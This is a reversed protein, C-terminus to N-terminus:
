SLDCDYRVQITDLNISTKNVDSGAYWDLKISICATKTGGVPNTQGFASATTDLQYKVYNTERQLYYGSPIVYTFGRGDVDSEDNRFLTASGKTISKSSTSNSTLQIVEFATSAAVSGTAGILAGLLGSITSPNSGNEGVLDFYPIGRLMKTYSGTAFSISLNTIRLGTLDYQIGDVICYADQIGFEVEWTYTASTVDTIRYSVYPQAYYSYTTGMIETWAALYAYTKTDSYDKMPVAAEIENTSVSPQILSTFWFGDIISEKARSSPTDDIDISALEAPISSELFYLYDNNRLYLKVVPSSSFSPNVTGGVYSTNPDNYIEFHLVEFVGSLDRLEGVYCKIGHARKRSNFLTGELSLVRVENSGFLTARFSITRTQYNFCIDEYSVSLTSSVPFLRSNRHFAQGVFRESFESLTLVNDFSRDDSFVSGPENKEKSSPSVALVPTSVLSMCLCCVLLLSLLIKKTM